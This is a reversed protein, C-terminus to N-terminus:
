GSAVREAALRQTVAAWRDLLAAARGDDVAAAVRPLHQALADAAPPDGQADFVALAAAANLLVADRVPGRRGAVLDRVAAANVEATGGRLDQPACRPVGLDTPDVEERVVDGGVARWLSSTTVTTLEDLGDDGRVVWARTGRAALAAAVVPALREDAVGVVQAPPRAPNTLPGLVNFVTPVVLERRVPAAHRMSPHFVQAFLFAIGVEELCREVQPPALDVVVGLEALVDASGCASSAARNGHKAVRLGAAACVVAAMTSVNVSESRDGGTGCTDVDAPVPLPHAAQTMVEALAAVETATEGKTRLAALFAGLAAPGAEGRVVQHMAWRAQEATLDQRAVLPGLVDPWRM